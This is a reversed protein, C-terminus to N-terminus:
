NASCQAKLRIAAPEFGAAGLWRDETV